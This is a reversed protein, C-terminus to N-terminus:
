ELSKRVNAAFENFGSVDEKCAPYNYTDPFVFVFSGDPLGGCVLKDADKWGLKTCLAEAVRRADKDGNLDYERPLTIRGASAKALWRSGPSNTPGLYKVQIAQM